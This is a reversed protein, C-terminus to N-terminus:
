KRPTLLLKALTRTPVEVGLHLVFALAFSNLIDNAAEQMQSSPLLETSMSLSPSLLSPPLYTSVSVTKFDSQHYPARLTATGSMQYIWHVLYVCYTLKSMILFVRPTTTFRVIATWLLVLFVTM